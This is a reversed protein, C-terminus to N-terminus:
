QIACKTTVTLGVVSVTEDNSKCQTEADSKKANIVFSSDASYTNLGLIPDVFSGSTTCKCSYDRKCSVAIIVFAALALNKFKLINKM